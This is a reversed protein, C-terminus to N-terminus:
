SRARKYAPKTLDKWSAPKPLSKKQAEVTNFASRPSGRPEMGVWRRPTDKDRFQADCREAGERTRLLM